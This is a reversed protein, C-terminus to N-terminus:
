AQLLCCCAKLAQTPINWINRCFTVSTAAPKSCEDLCLVYLCATRECLQRASFVCWGYADVDGLAAAVASLNGEAPQMVGRMAAADYAQPHTGTLWVDIFAGESTPVSHGQLLLLAAFGDHSRSPMSETDHRLIAHVASPMDPAASSIHLHVGLTSANLTGHTRVFVSVSGGARVNM